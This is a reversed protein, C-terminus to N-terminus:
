RRRRRALVLAAAALGLVLGAGGAGKSPSAACGTTTRVIRRSPETASSGTCTDDEGDCEDALVLADNADLDVPHTWEPAAYGGREAAELGAAVIMPAHADTRTYVAALCTTETQPGRSLAGLVYPSGAEFS